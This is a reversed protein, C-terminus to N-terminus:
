CNMGQLMGWPPKVTGRHKCIWLDIIMLTKPWNTAQTKPAESPDPDKFNKEQGRLIRVECIRDLTFNGQTVHRMTQECHHVAYIALKYNNVAVMSVAYGPASIRAPQSAGVANPKEVGWSLPRVQLPEGSGQQKVSRVGGLVCHRSHQRGPCLGPEFVRAEQIILM